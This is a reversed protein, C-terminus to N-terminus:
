AMKRAPLDSLAAKTAAKFFVSLRRSKEGKAIRVDYKMKTVTACINLTPRSGPLSKGPFTGKSM